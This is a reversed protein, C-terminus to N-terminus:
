SEMMMIVRLWIDLKAFAQGGVVLSRNSTILSHSCAHPCFLPWPIFPPLHHVLPLGHSRLITWLFKSNPFLFYTESAASHATKVLNLTLSVHSRTLSFCSRIDFMLFFFWCLPCEKSARQKCMATASSHLRAHLDYIQLVWTSSASNYRTHKLM